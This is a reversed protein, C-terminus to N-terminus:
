SLAIAKTFLDVMTNNNAHQNYQKEVTKRGEKGFQNRMGANEILARIQLALDEVDGPTALFGNIGHEILEPIGTIRTSIVPIEKAMAEMLVVPVGEAFSALIFMDAQDYYDRVRDQGLVGTFTVIENLNHAQSFAELSKRDPGDGVLTLHFRVGAKRLIACAELLIHQGKAPVLRGVCLLNPVENQPDPRPVYTAPDVGCRVIHHHPWTSNPSIRMIQSRCYYSICRVFSANKVKEELMSSDVHYFIDPGHISISYSIGGYTKMLLAVFATPNGFHEHVHTVGLRHLWELVIGAETFYAAAKIPSRPGNFVPKLGAIAMRMYGAPNKLLCHVHAKLMAYLSRSLVVFTEAAEHQEAPTMLGIDSSKRITATHVTMGAQRLSEIERFIFTHSIAPYESCLYAIPTLQKM